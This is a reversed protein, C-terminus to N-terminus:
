FFLDRLAKFDFKKKVDAENFYGYGINSNYGYGYAYGYGATAVGRKKIGNFVINVNKLRQMEMDEDLIRINVKPTVNHRVVFLTMDAFRSIIYTDSVPSVPVSDIIIIDFQDELGKMLVDIKDNMLLESPNDPVNGAPIVFLNKHIVTPHISSRLMSNATKANQLSDSLGTNHPLKFVSSLSPKYMDAEILVVKKGAQAFVIALNSAVFSKGEGAISSTVMIRKGNGNSLRAAIASRLNRFQETVFTRQNNKTVLLQNSGEYGLEGIVPIVTYEELTRRFLIKGSILEKISIFSALVPIPFLLAILYVIWSKPSVPKTSSQAKDILRSDAVASNFSLTAEEKKQLLFSYISNKINQERSIEVLEKEKEPLTNLMASYRTSTSILKKRSADISNRQNKVNELISPKIKTIENRISVLIPNDEATTKRLKEYQIESDYLKELLQSLMPDIVGLTTPVLGPQENKSLIYKQIQDLVSMQVDMESLKQDTESVNRLYQNSQQSIDVVGNKTRFKQIGNEVMDLEKGVLKLRKEVFDLTNSAMMNKDNISAKNYDNILENLIAEGRQPIADKLIINIISSLKSSPSIELANQLENIKKPLNIFSFFFLKDSSLRSNKIYSPNALFRISGWQTSVRQNIHYAKDAIIVINLGPDYRFSIRNAEILSDPNELEVRVPCSTYASHYSFGSREEIPAYLQLNTVTQSIISRSHLVEIENEVIKKAGFLNLADLVKSEDLGRKEDKILISASVEYLPTKYKLYLSAIIASVVLLIVFLPWYPMYKFIFQQLLNTETTEIDTNKSVKM